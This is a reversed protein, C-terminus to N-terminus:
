YLNVLAETRIAGREASPELYVERLAAIWIHIWASCYSKNEKATKRSEKLMNIKESGRKSSPELEVERLRPNQIRLGLCYSVIQQSNFRMEPKKAKKQNITQAYPILLHPQHRVRPLPHQDM